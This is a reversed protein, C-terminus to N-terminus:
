LDVDKGHLIEVRCGDRGGQRLEKREVAEGVKLDLIPIARLPQDHRAPRDGPIRVDPPLETKRREGGRANADRDRAGQGAVAPDGFHFGVRRGAAGDRRGEGLARRGGAGGSQGHSGGQGPGGAAAGGTVLVTRVGGVVVAAVGRP